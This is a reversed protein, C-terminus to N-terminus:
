VKLETEEDAWEFDEDGIIREMNHSENELKQERETTATNANMTEVAKDWYDLLHHQGVVRLIRSDWGASLRNTVVTTQGSIIRKARNISYAVLDSWCKAWKYTPRIPGESANLKHTLEIWIRQKAKPSDIVNNVYRIADPHDEFYKLM